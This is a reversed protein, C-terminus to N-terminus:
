GGNQPHRCRIHVQVVQQILQRPPQVPQQHIAVLGLRYCRAAEVVADSGRPAWELAGFVQVAVQILDFPQVFSLVLVEVCHLSQEGRRRAHQHRQHQVSVDGIPGHTKLGYTHRTGTTPERRKARLDDRHIFREASRQDGMRPHSSGSVPIIRAVTSAGM